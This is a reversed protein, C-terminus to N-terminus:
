LSGYQVTRAQKRSPERNKLFVSLPDFGRLLALEEAAPQAVPQPSDSVIVDWGTCERIDDIIEDPDDAAEAFYGTLLFVGGVREFIAKTTVIATVQRGPATIYPLKVVLRGLDHKVVVVVEEAASAIDNAGGSGVIFRGDESWTSNLNGDRDIQAAGLVGICSTAPGAVTSGLVETVDTLSMCTPLNQSAFLYPDGPLPAFGSMGVEALLQVPVDSKRLREAAVWAALHALGIGAVISDHGATVVKQSVIRAAALTMREEASARSARRRIAVRAPVSPSTGRPSNGATPLVPRAALLELYGAHDSVGTIWQATWAAFTEPDKAAEQVEGMFAADEPYSDVGPFGGAYLAYPHSGRPVRCVACV